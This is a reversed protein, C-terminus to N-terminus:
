RQENPVVQDIVVMFARGDWQYVRERLNSPCCQPDGAEWIGDLSVVVGGGIDPFRTEVRAGEIVGLVAPAGGVNQVVVAGFDGMTGGSEVVVFAEDVGDGTFDVYEIREVPVEGGGFRDLIPALVATSTFDLQQAPRAAPAVTGTATAPATPSPESDATGTCGGLILAAALLAAGAGMPITLRRM